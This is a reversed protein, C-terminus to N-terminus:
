TIGPSTKCERLGRGDGRCLRPTCAAETSGTMPRAGRPSSPITADTSSVSDDALEVLEPRWEAPRGMTPGGRPSRAVPRAPPFDKEPKETHSIIIYKWTLMHMLAHGKNLAKGDKRIGLYVWEQTYDHTKGSEEAIKTENM